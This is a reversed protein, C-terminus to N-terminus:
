VKEWHVTFALGTQAACCEVKKPLLVVCYSLLSFIFWAPRVTMHPPECVCDWCKSALASSNGYIQPRGPGCLSVIGWIVFYMLNFCFYSMFMRNDLLIIILWVWLNLILISYSQSVDTIRWTNVLLWMRASFVVTSFVPRLSQRGAWPPLRYILSVSLVTLSDM